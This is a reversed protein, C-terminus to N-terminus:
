QKRRIQSTKWDRSKESVAHEQTSQEFEQEPRHRALKSQDESWETNQMVATPVTNKKWNLKM